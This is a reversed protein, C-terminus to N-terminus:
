PENNTPVCQNAIWRKMTISTCGTPRITLSIFSGINPCVSHLKNPPPPPPSIGWLAPLLKNDEIGYPRYVLMTYNVFADFGLIFTYLLFIQSAHHGNM